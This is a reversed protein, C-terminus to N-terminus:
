FHLAASKDVLKKIDKIVKSRRGLRFISGFVFAVAENKKFSKNVILDDAKYLDGSGDIVGRPM